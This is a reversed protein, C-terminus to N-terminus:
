DDEKRSHMYDRVAQRLVVPASAAWCLTGNSAYTLHVAPDFAADRLLQNRENYKRDAITGHYLHRITTSVYGVRPPFQRANVMYELVNVKSAESWPHHRVIRTDGYVSAAWAVDSGGTILKDYLGGVRRLHTRSAGWVFGPSSFRASTVVPTRGVNYRACSTNRTGDPKDDKGLYVVTEFGQIVDKNRFADNVLPVYNAPFLLDADVWLVHTYEVPLSAILLNLLNEKCFM